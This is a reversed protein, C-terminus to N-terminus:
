KKSKRYYEKKAKEAKQRHRDAKQEKQSKRDPNRNADFFIKEEQRNGALCSKPGIYGIYKWYELIYALIQRLDHRRDKAKARFTEPDEEAQEEAYVSRFLAEFTPPNQRSDEFCRNANLALFFAAAIIRPSTRVARGPKGDKDIKRIDFVELPACAVPVTSKERVSLLLPLPPGLIEIICDYAKPEELGEKILQEKTRRLAEEARQKEEEKQEEISAHPLNNRKKRDEIYLKKEFARRLEEARKRYDKTAELFDEGGKVVQGRVIYSGSLFNINIFRKGALIDGPKIYRHNQMKSLSKYIRHWTPGGSTGHKGEREKDTKPKCGTILQEIQRISIKLKALSKESEWQEPNPYENLWFSCIASLVAYDFITFDNNGLDFYGNLIDAESKAEEPTILELLGEAGEKKRTKDSVLGVFHIIAEKHKPIKMEEPLQELKVPVPKKHRAPLFAPVTEPKPNPKLGIEELDVEFVAIYLKIVRAFFLDYFIALDEPGDPDEGPHITKAYYLLIDTERTALASRIADRGRPDDELAFVQRGTITEVAAKREQRDQYSFIHETLLDFLQRRGGANTKEAAEKLHRELQEASEALSRKFTERDEAYKQRGEPTTDYANLMTQVIESTELSALQEPGKIDKKM